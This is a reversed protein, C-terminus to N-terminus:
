FVDLWSIVVKLMNWPPHPSPEETKVVNESPNITVLSAPLLRKSRIRTKSSDSAQDADIYQPNELHSVSRIESNAEERSKVTSFAGSTEMDFIRVSPKISRGDVDPDLFPVPKRDDDTRPKIQEPIIMKNTHGGVLLLPDLTPSQLIIVKTRKVKRNENRNPFKQAYHLNVWSPLKRKKKSSSSSTAAAAAAAAADEM